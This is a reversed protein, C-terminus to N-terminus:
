VYSYNSIKSDKSCADLIHNVIDMPGDNVVVIDFTELYTDIYDEVDHNLFGITLCIEHQIGDAMHIDGISDGLLIVNRRNEITKYYPSDKLMIESKNFIHILPVKFHDCIGTEPNFGMQNSVIHMNNSYYLNKTILVEEIVNAIGASFILFPIDNDKCKRILVDLGPRMEVPTEAVMEKIDNKNIRQGLLLEHAKEWWEIMYPIKEEKTLTKDIEIPYYDECLKDTEKKFEETLRSSSSLIKHSGPNRERNPTFYRTMTCDFDCVIQLNELGDDLIKELKRHTADVNKLKSHKKIFDIFHQVKQSSLM